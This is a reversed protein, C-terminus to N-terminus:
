EENLEKLFNKLSIYGKNLELFRDNFAEVTNLSCKIMYRLLEDSIGSEFYPATMKFSVRSEDSIWGFSGDILRNSVACAAVAVDSEKTRRMFIPIPSNLVVVRGYMDVHMEFSMPVDEGIIDFWARLTDDNRKVAYGLRGLKLCLEDFFEQAQMVRGPQISVSTYAKQEKRLIAFFDRMGLEGEALDKLRRKITNVTEFARALMYYVLPDNEDRVLPNGSIRFVVEGTDIDYDFSGGSLSANLVSVAYSFDRSQEKPVILSIASYLLILGRDGDVNFTMAESAERNGVLVDITYEANNASLVTIKKANLADLIYNYIKEANNNIM